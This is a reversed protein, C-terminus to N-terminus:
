TLYRYLNHYVYWARKDFTNMENNWGTERFPNSVCYDTTSSPATVYVRFDIMDSSKSKKVKVIEEIIIRRNWDFSLICKLVFDEQIHQINLKKKLNEYQKIQSKTRPEIASFSYNEIQECM